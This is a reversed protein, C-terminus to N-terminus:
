HNVLNIAVRRDTRSAIAQQRTNILAQDLKRAGSELRMSKSLNIFSFVAVGSVVSAIALVVLLEILSFGRRVSPTRM